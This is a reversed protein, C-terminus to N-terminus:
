MFITLALKVTFPKSAVYHIRPLDSDGTGFRSAFHYAGAMIKQGFLNELVCTVDFIDFRYGGSFVGWIYGNVSAGHPLPRRGMLRIDLGAHAGTTDGLRTRLNALVKPVGPVENGSEVFRANVLSVDVSTKWWQKLTLDMAMEAGLRRTRNKELNTGSVHDFVMEKEMLTVFGSVRIDLAGLPRFNTGAEMSHGSSVDATGGSYRSLNEDEVNRSSLVSRLEPLRIGQGYAAFLMVSERLPFTVTCRPSLHAFRSDNQRDTMLDAASYLATDVRISPQVVVVSFPKWDIGAFGYLHQIHGTVELNTRWIRGNGTLQVESQSIRDLRWGMEANVAVKKSRGLSRNWTLASGATIADHKQRRTDGTEPYLLYGTYNDELLFSRRIGFLKWHWANGASEKGLDLSLLIRRMRGEGSIGYTDFFGKQGSDVDSLAMAGPSEFDAMQANVLSRLRVEAGLRWDYSLMGTARGADRNEAFGPNHVGELAVFKLPDRKIPLVVVSRIRGHSDVEDRMLGSAYADPVGTEVVVTGGTAFNGQWPLFPGPHVTMGSIVEPIIGYLDLYGSGHINSPENLSIGNLTVEVDSGHAADFGRLYLQHGKGEASHQVVAVGPALELLEDTSEPMRDEIERASIRTEGATGPLAASVVESEFSVTQFDADEEWDFEASEGYEDRSVLM